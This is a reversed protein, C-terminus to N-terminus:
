GLNTMCCGSVHLCSDYSQLVEQLVKGCCYKWEYKGFFVYDLIVYM